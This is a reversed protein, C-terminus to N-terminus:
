LLRDICYVSHTEDFLTCETDIMEVLKILDGPGTNRQRVRVIDLLTNM